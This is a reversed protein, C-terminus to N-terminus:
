TELTAERLPYSRGSTAVSSTYMPGEFGHQEPNAKPDLHHESRRFYPLQGRYSWHEDGVERAWYECDQADGRIWGGSNPV